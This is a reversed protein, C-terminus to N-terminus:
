QPCYNSTKPMLDSVSAGGYDEALVELWQEDNLRKKSM